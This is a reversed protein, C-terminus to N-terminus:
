RAVSGREAGEKMEQLWRIASSLLGLLNHFAVDDGSHPTATLFLM